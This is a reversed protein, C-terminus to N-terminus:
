LCPSAFRPVDISAHYIFASLQDPVTSILVSLLYGLSPRFPLPWRLHRKRSCCLRVFDRRSRNSLELHFAFRNGQGIYPALEMSDVIGAQMAAPRQALADHVLVNHSARPMPPLVVHRGTLDALVWRHT